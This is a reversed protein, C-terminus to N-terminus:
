PNRPRTHQSASCFDHPERGIAYARSVIRACTGSIPLLGTKECVEMSIMGVRWNKEPATKATEAPKENKDPPPNDPTATRPRTAPTPTADPDDPKVVTKEQLKPESALPAGEPLTEGAGGPETGSIFYERRRTPTDPGAIQGNVPDIDVTVIDQPIVFDGGLDPRQQLARSMFDAWIPAASNGGTLGLDSNDDFGVWVACVLNPTYGVFWGDRSSGTKGAATKTFGMQRVRTGTGRDLVDQMMSTMLFAVQPSIVENTAANASSVTRGGSGVVKKYFIPAVRRGGNAFMTYASCMQLPTAEAVGLAMSPYAPPRPLGAREALRAIRSFGLREAIEITIVNKSKVLADRLTLNRNEYSEGFNGPKYEEGFGYNFTKPADMFLSAPTFVEGYDHASTLAQAYVFPKFVSGPQRKAETARNLQSAAYDRGGIMAMVEGTKTNMAVLAAQLGATGGKRKGLSKEIATMHRTIAQYAARQLGIDVTSFIRMTKLTEPDSGLQSELQRTLYDVFYPADNVDFGGARAVVGLPSAKAKQADALSIKGVKYLEEIVFNRRDLAVDPHRVPSYRNPSRIIGGLLACEAVSLQSIDKDFYSHAAEGFGQISFGNRQGMYALNSYMGMIQEKSLRTELIISMYAESLKRKWTREQTLYFNKVTQQTITSGGAVIEGEEYNRMFARIIGRWDIGYHEFYTRDEIITIADVLTRPLDRFDTIKRKERGESIISSIMQPEVQARELNVRSNLDNITQITQKGFTIRLDRFMREGDVVTDAGPYIEVTNARVLYMGRSENQATTKDLYGLRKLWNVLDPSTIGMGAYINQPAAYIGSARVFVDGRLGRDILEAFKYYYHVLIVVGLLGALAVPVLLM